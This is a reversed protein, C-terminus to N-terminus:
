SMKTRRTAMPQRTHRARLTPHESKGEMWSSGRGGGLKERTAARKHSRGVEAVSLSISQSWRCTLHSPLGLPQRLQSRRCSSQTPSFPMVVTAARFVFSAAAAVVDEEGETTLGPDGVAEEVMVALEAADVAVEMERRLIRV